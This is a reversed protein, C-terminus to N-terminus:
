QWVKSSLLHQTTLAVFEWVALERRGFITDTFNAALGRLATRFMSALGIFRVM